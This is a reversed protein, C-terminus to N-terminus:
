HHPAIIWYVKGIICIIIVKYVLRSPLLEVEINIVSLIHVAEELSGIILLFPICPLDIKPHIDSTVM